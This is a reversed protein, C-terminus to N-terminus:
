KRFLESHSGTRALRLLRVSDGHVKYILLWDPDIHCERYGKWNGVLEHDRCKSPLSEEQQLLEVVHNLKMKDKRQKGIKKMDKKFQKSLDLELM